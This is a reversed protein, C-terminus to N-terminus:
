TIDVSMQETQGLDCFNAFRGKTRSRGSVYVNVASKRLLIDVVLSVLYISIKKFVRKQSRRKM